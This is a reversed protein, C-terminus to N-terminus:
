DVGASDVSLVSSSDEGPRFYRPERVPQTGPWRSMPGVVRATSDPPFPVLHSFGNAVLFPDRMPLHRPVVRCAPVGHRALASTASSVTLAALAGEAETVDAVGLGTCLRDRLEESTAAVGIWGDTCAYYRHGADPGRFM